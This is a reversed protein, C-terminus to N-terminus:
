NDEATGAVLSQQSNGCVQCRMTVMVKEQPTVSLYVSLRSAGCRGCVFPQKDPEGRVTSDLLDNANKM